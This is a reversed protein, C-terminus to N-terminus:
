RFIQKIPEIPGYAKVYYSYSAQLSPAAAARSNTFYSNPPPPPPIMYYELLVVQNEPLCHIFYEPLQGRGEGDGVRGRFSVPGARRHPTIGKRM